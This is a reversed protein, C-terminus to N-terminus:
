IGIKGLIDVLRRSSAALTPHDVEFRVALAELRDPLSPDPSEGPAPTEPALNRARLRAVEASIETLLRQSEADVRPAAALEAHLRALHTHLDDSDMRGDEYFRM